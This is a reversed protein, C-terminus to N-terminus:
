EPKESLIAELMHSYISSIEVWGRQGHYGLACKVMGESPKRLAEVAARAMNLSYPTPPDIGPCIARAVQELKTMRIERVDTFRGEPTMMRIPGVGISVVRGGEAKEGNPGDQFYGNPNRRDLKTM